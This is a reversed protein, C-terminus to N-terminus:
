RFPPRSAGHFFAVVEIGDASVHYVLRYGAVIFERLQSFNYEHVITGAEPFEALMKTANTIRGLLTLAVRDSTRQISSITHRLETAAEVSWRVNV